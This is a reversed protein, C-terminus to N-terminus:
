QSQNMKLSRTLAVTADSVVSITGTTPTSDAIASTPSRGPRESQHPNM